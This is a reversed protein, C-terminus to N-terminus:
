HKAGEILNEASEPDDISQNIVHAWGETIIHSPQNQQNRQQEFAAARAAYDAPTPLGSSLAATAAVASVNTSSPRSPRGKKGIRSGTRSIPGPTPSSAQSHDLPNTLTRSLTQPQMPPPPPRAKPTTYPEAEM